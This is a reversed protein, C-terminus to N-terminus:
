GTLEPQSSRLTSSTRCPGLSESLVRRRAFHKCRSIVRPVKSSRILSMILLLRSSASIVTPVPSVLTPCSGSCSNRAKNSSCLGSAQHAAPAAALNNRQEICGIEEALAFDVFDIAVSAPGRAATRASRRWNRVGPRTGKRSVSAVDQSLLTKNGAAM